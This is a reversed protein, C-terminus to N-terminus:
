PKLEVVLIKDLSLFRQALARRFRYPLVDGLGHGPSELFIDFGHRRVTSYGALMSRLRAYDMCNIHEPDRLYADGAHLTGLNPTSVVAVGGDKLVRRIEDVCKQPNRLHEVVEGCAVSDFAGERLPLDEADAMIDGGSVDLGFYEHSPLLPKL